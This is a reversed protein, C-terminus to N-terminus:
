AVNPYREYVHEFVASVKHQYLDPTYARPLGEDLTDEIALRVRARAQAKRRWDLVVAAKLKELLARAVKKVEDQEELTLEPGPRTLIDFITL